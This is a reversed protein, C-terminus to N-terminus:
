NIGERSTGRWTFYLEFFQYQCSIIELKNFCPVPRTTDPARKFRSTKIPKYDVLEIETEELIWESKDNKIGLIQVTIPGGLGTEIHNRDGLKKIKFRIGREKSWENVRDLIEKPTVKLGNEQYNSPLAITLFCHDEYEKASNRLEDEIASFLKPVVSEFLKREEELIKSKTELLEALFPHLSEERTELLQM